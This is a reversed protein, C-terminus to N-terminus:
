AHLLAAASVQGLGRGDLGADLLDLVALGVDILLDAWTEGLELLLDDGGNFPGLASEMGFDVLGAHGADVTQSPEITRFQM